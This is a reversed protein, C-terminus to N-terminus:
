GRRRLGKVCLLAAGYGLFATIHRDVINVPIRSLIEALLMPSDESFLIPGLFSHLRETDRAYGGIQVIIVTIIGGLISMALCLTFSLLVLVVIRNMIGELHRSRRSADPLYPLALEKSFFRVFAHTILATTMNCIAFLYGEFGWFIYTHSVINSLAGCLMGWVPGGILTVSVTFITDLYLPFYFVRDTLAIGTLFNLLVGVLCIVPM